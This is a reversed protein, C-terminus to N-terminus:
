DHGFLGRPRITLILLLMVVAALLALRPSLLTSFSSEVFGLLLAVLLAGTISGPGGIIVIIFSKLIVSAGMYPGVLVVPAALAGAVGAFISGLLMTMASSWNLSMGQLAAAERDQSCALIALGTKTRRLFLGLLILLGIGAFIIVIKQTNICAGFIHIVQPFALPVDKMKTGFTLLISTQLVFIVGLSAIFAGMPNARLPRFVARELMMGFIGVAVAAVLVSVLFPMHNKAFLFWVVYAGLMYLEGHAFNIIGMVGFVLTLGVAILAYLSGLVLGNLFIQTSYEVM